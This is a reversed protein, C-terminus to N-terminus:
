EINSDQLEKMSAAPSLKKVRTIFEIFRPRERIPDFDENNLLYKISEPLLGDPDDVASTLLDFTANLYRTQCDYKDQDELLPDEAANIWCWAYASAIRPIAEKSKTPDAIWNELEASVERHGKVLLSKILLTRYKLRESGSSIGVLNSLTTSAKDSQGSEMLLDTQMKLVIRLSEQAVKHAPNTALVSRIKAEADRQRDLLDSTPLHDNNRRIERELSVAQNSISAAWATTNDNDDPNQEHLRQRVKSEREFYGAASSFNEMTLMTIGLQSYTDALIFSSETPSIQNTEIQQLAAIRNEGVRVIQEIKEQIKLSHILRGFVNKSLKHDAGNATVLQEYHRELLESTERLNGLRALVASYTMVTGFRVPDDPSMGATAIDLDSYQDQAEEFKGAVALSRALNYRASLTERDNVGLMDIRQEVLWEQIKISDDIRGLKELTEILLEASRTTRVNKNGYVRIIGNHASQAIPLSREPKGQANIARALNTMANLTDPHDNGHTETWAVVVQRFRNEALVFNGQDFQCIGLNQLTKITTDHTNGLVRRCIALNQLSIQVAESSRKLHQFLDAVQFRAQLTTEDEIGLEVECMLLSSKLSDEIKSYDFDPQGHTVWLLSLHTQLSKRHAEGLQAQFLQDADHLKEIAEAYAGISGYAEGITKLLEAKVMPETKFRDGIGSAARDLAERVTLDPSPENHSNAQGLLDVNVFENVLNAIKAETLAKKESTRAREAADTAAQESEIADMAYWTSVSACIVLGSFALGAALLRTKNRRVFKRLRYSQSPPGAAVPENDICRQIDDTFASATEYRRTRDKELAKMVIWDLDRRLILGLKQFSNKRNEATQTAECIQSMRTSPKTPEDERIMRLTEDLAQSKIKEREFPPEGALLEYLIAGLSYIDSRTDIDLNNFQAQEPSMYELTGVIQGFRTFMTKDTLKDAVAKSVGFDIVKPVPQDDYMAVMVNSPKLDRHIIGKQHAHQVAQCVKQFLKLRAETDLRQEDCFETIPKGKVLEMVFYPRGSETAGADHVKAINPHDMLALAQREAEFRAIVQRTDMGTKILKLAVRRKVPETQEAMYVTGMGGEGIVELLKYPGIQADPTNLEISDFDLTPQTQASDELFRPDEDEMQLLVEIRQRMEPRDACAQDLYERRADACDIHVAINFISKEDAIQTNM